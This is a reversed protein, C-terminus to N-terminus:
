LLLIFLLHTPFQFVDEYREGNVNTDHTACYRNGFFIYLINRGSVINFTGNHESHQRQPISLLETIDTTKLGFCFWRKTMRVEMEDKLICNDWSAKKWAKIMWKYSYKKITKDKDWVFVKLQIYEKIWIYFIIILGLSIIMYWKLYRSLLLIM